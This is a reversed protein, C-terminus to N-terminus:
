QSLPFLEDDIVVDSPLIDTRFGVLVPHRLTGAATVESFTVEAVLAPDMFRVGAPTPNTFPSDERQLDGALARFAALDANSLGSGVMGVFLFQRDGGGRGSNVAAGGSGGAEGSTAGVAGAPGPAPRDYVGLALSGLGGARGGRGESWGAVVFERRRICKAKIWADSRFGPLYPAEAHKLVVGELGLGRCTDLLAADPPLDLLPSTLWPLEQIALEDLVQRRARQPEGTLLEGDLWLVDFVILNVPVEAMLAATPNRVHMRRQLLGFSPRGQDDPAVVEGDLVASRGDLRSPPRRLEPYAGTIDNDNRSRLTLSAGTVTVIARVGDWKPEVMWGSGEAPIGSRGALM